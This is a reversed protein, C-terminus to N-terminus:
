HQIEIVIRWFHACLMGCEDEVLWATRSHWSLTIFGLPLHPMIYRKM